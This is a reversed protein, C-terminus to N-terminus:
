YKLVKSVNVRGDSRTIQMLYTGSAFNRMDIEHAPQQGSEYVTKGDNALLKIGKIEAWDDVKVQLKEVVPNPFLTLETAIEFQLSRITSYSFSGDNDVMRLRYYNTGSLPQKDTFSYSLLTQSENGALIKTLSHWLKADTSRQIEFFDSNIELTTKWSIQATNEVKRATFDMLTVPLAGATGATIYKFTTPAVLDNYVYHTTTNQVSGSTVVYSTNAHIIQLGSEANGNLESTKYFLGVRGVFTFADSFPYVRSISPPSSMIPGGSVQMTKNTLTLNASPRLTLGDISVDTNAGIFIGDAGVSFQAHTHIISLFALQCLLLYRKM